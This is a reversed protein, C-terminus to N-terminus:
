HMETKRAGRRLLSWGARSTPSFPRTPGISSSGCRRRPYSAMRTGGGGFAGWGDSLIKPLIEEICAATHEKTAAPNAQGCSGVLTWRVGGLQDLLDQKAMSAEVVRYVGFAAIGTVIGVFM